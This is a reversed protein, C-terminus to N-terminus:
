SNYIGVNSVIFSGKHGGWGGLFFVRTKERKKVAFFRYPKKSNRHLCRPFKPVHDIRPSEFLDRPPDNWSEYATLNYGGLFLAGYIEAMQFPVCWLGWSDPTKLRDRLPKHAM